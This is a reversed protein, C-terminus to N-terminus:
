RALLLAVETGKGPRSAIKIRGDHLRMLERCLTLGLGTGKPNTTYFPDFVKKLERPAIGCGNDSVTVKVRGPGDDLLAIGIRIDRRGSLSQFANDLLNNVVLKLQHRDARVAGAGSKLRFNRRITGKKVGYRREAAAACDDLLAPLQVPAPVPMKIRSFSLLDNITRDSEAIKTEINRIHKLLAQGRLKRKLNYVAAAIVGLPNRLEHAVTAAMTGLNSLHRSEELERHVAIAEESKVAVLRAFTEKDRRLVEEARKLSSIDLLSAIFKNLEPIFDVNILADVTEGSRNLFKFEYRKPVRGPGLRRRENMQRIRPLDRAPIFDMWKMKGEVAARPWGSLREAEENVREVIGDTGYIVMAAGANEFVKRYLTEAMKRDSVDTIIGLIAPGNDLKILKTTIIANLRRGAKTVIVYEYPQVEEGKEHRRFATAVLAASEPATLSHFDFGPSLFEERTYGMVEECKKNVYIVRGRQNIFIMNPSHETVTRFLKGSSTFDDASM